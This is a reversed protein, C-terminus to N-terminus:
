KYHPMQADSFEKETKQWNNLVQTRGANVENNLKNFTNISNNYENVAKNYGDADEKTRGSAPKSDFAKKIKDFNEQKLYFETLKPINAEATKKYYKLVERCANALSPDSNFAKLTDLGKLGEEAYRLLASRAQEIDNVKKNNMATVMQADEWNAKFFFLYVANQYKNLKDAIEMKEGLANKTNIITVNYKAAFAHEKQDLNTAAERLKENIKDQLLLYAQMEDVSQETLEEMDVIKKYDENFVRYCMLIYDISGQRLSNDGKYQPLDITKYRSQNITEIVQQRVKEVKRAGRGHAAVSLYQMYKADMDGRARTIADMYEGPNDLTQSYTALSCSMFITLVFLPICNLPKMYHPKRLHLFLEHITFGAPLNYVSFLGTCIVPQM